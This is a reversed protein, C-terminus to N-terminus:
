KTKIYVALIHMSVISYGGIAMTISRSPVATVSVSASTQWADNREPHYAPLIPHLREHKRFGFSIPHHAARLM